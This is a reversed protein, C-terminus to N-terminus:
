IFCGAAMCQKAVSFQSMELDALMASPGILNPASTQNDACIHNSWTVKILCNVCKGDQVTPNAEVGPGVSNTPGPERSVHGSFKTNCPYVCPLHWNIPTPLAADCQGGMGEPM